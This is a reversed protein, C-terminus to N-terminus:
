LRLKIQLPFKKVDSTKFPNLMKHWFFWFLFDFLFLYFILLLWCQHVRYITSIDTNALFTHRKCIKKRKNKKGQRLFKSESWNILKGVKLVVTLPTKYTYVFPTQCQSIQTVYQSPSTWPEVTWRTNTHSIVIKWNLNGRFFRLSCLVWTEYPLKIQM